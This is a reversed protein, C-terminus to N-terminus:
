TKKPPGWDSDSERHADFAPLRTEALAKLETANFLGRPWIFDATYPWAVTLRDPPTITLDTGFVLPRCYFVQGVFHGIAITALYADIPATRGTANDTEVLKLPQFHSLTAWERGSFCGISITHHESPSQKAFFAQFEPEWEKWMNGSGALHVLCTKLLWTAVTEQSARPLMIGHGQIMPGIISLSRSELQSMWGTNCSKCFARVENGSVTKRHGREQRNYRGVADVVEGRLHTQWIQGGKLVHDIWKPMGHEKTLPGGGCFVCARKAPMTM